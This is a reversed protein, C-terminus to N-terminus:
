AKASYWSFNFVINRSCERRALVFNLMKANRESGKGSERTWVCVIFRPFLIISFIMAFDIQKLKFIPNCRFACTSRFKWSRHIHFITPALKFSQQTGLLHCALYEGSEIRLIFLVKMKHLEKNQKLDRKYFIQSPHVNTFM